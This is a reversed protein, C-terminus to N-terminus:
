GCCYDIDIAAYAAPEKEEYFREIQKYKRTILENAYDFTYWKCCKVTFRWLYITDRIDMAYDELSQSEDFSRTRKDFAELEEDTM